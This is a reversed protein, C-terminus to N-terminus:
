AVEADTPMRSVVQVRTADDNMPIKGESLMHADVETAGIAGALYAMLQTYASMVESPPTAAGRDAFCADWAPSWKTGMADRRRDSLTRLKADAGWGGFTKFCRELLANYSPLFHRDFLPASIHARQDLSRKLGIVESPEMEKWSGVYAFFCFLKNLSPALEDYAQIRREIIKQQSWQAAEVSKLRRNLWYAAVAVVVPTLAAVALKVIELSTWTSAAVVGCEVHQDANGGAPAVAWATGLRTATAIMWM